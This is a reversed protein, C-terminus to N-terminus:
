RLEAKLDYRAEGAKARVRILYKGKSPLSYVARKAGSVLTPMLGARERFLDFFVGEGKSKVVVSLRRGGPASLEYVYAVHKSVGAESDNFVGGRGFVVQKPTTKFTEVVDRGGPKVNGNDPVPRAMSQYISIITDAKERAEANDPQLRLVRRFDGLAFKYLPPQGAAYFYEARELLASAADLREREGAGQAEAKKLAGVIREDLMSFDWGEIGTEVTKFEQAAARAGCLILFVLAATPLVKRRM